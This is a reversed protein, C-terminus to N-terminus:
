ADKWKEQPLESTFSKIKTNYINEALSGIENKENLQEVLLDEIQQALATVTQCDFLSKLPVDLFLMERLRDIVRAAMLSDGGLEFFNDSANVVSVGLVDQWSQAILMEIEDMPETISTEGSPNLDTSSLSLLGNASVTVESALKQQNTQAVIQSQPVDVWYRQREFPYTPLPVRRRKEYRSFSAWDVDGGVTWLRGLASLLVAFDSQRDQPHPLSSLVVHEVTKPALRRTLTALTHGPGVELFLCPGTGFLQNLNEAFRITSQLHRAWYEPSTAEEGTIWTGTTNSLFPIGPLALEKERLIEVFPDHVPAMMNSHFAHSVHLRRSHIRKEDLRKQFEVIAEVPGSVVTAEPGNVAAISLGNGVLPLLNAESSAVALMAGRSCRQILQGRQAILALADELSFVGALCAAVYEGVSHGIMAQPQVGWSIWLKALAYEVVFLAPQALWTEDLQTESNTSREQTPFLVSRLDLGLLPVLLQACRDVQEAFFPETEYLERSMNEYQSGQGPFLFVTTRKVSTQGRSLWLEQADNKKLLHIADEINQCVLMQRYAFQKRGIQLTYAINALNADPWQSLYACLNNMTKNLATESRASLLLLQWPRAAETAKQEPAEELIVHANTGGVGFSSVGARRFGRQTEWEMSEINVFFPSDAFDIAPNPHAFNLSAPIQKQKLALITKLMGAIGSAADLHGINTKVSGIACTGKRQDGRSRFAKTLGEIEIPDGLPTGTGHAEIYSITEPHVGAVALADSIAKAQGDASPATYGIKTSGDNNIASGKIVASITDGDILAHSLRKLLVVGAGTGGVTGGAQADFARCHGDPSMMEGERYIYGAKLPVQISVGGALAMSCEGRLLAQCAMHVAVLSTSCATQVTVAPGKLNFKYATRTTLYDKDNLVVCQSLGVKQMYEQNAYLNKLLYTNFSAGGYVGIPKSFREPDYGANELAQWACELFIRQQPDMIEAERPTINFFAADFLDVDEIIGKAPIFRVHRAESLKVGVELSEELSFRSICEVKGLLNQWFTDLSEAQPFRGAMGIVAIDTEVEVGKDPFFVIDSPGEQMAPAPEDLKEIDPGYRIRNALASITTYRFLEVLQIDTDIAQCLQQYVRELLLSHGGLDFFNDYLGVEDTELNERWIAAIKQELSSGTLAPTAVKRLIAPAKALAKHDIKGHPTLPFAELATYSAPIMYEPLTQRLLDRLEAEAPVHNKEVVVYAVLRQANESREDLVVAAERVLPHRTLTSEIEGLEVRFGRIKVQRDIRDLFELNGDPLYRALDGTRYFRAGPESSFPNPLFREATFEPRHLYGRSIGAGSIYLEGAIGVPVPQLHRDLIYIQVNTTPRGISPARKETSSSPVITATAGVTCETPGYHNALAFPLSPSPYSHLKDGGTQLLRLQTYEPWSLLLLKEALVTPINSLTIKNTVLWDRLLPPSLRAAEDVLYLSAGAALTTWIEQVSADLGFSLLQSARDNATVGYTQLHWFILNMLNRHTVAVGKPTGTSGSTYIIYVLNDATLEPAAVEVAERTIIEWQTDLCLLRTAKDPLLPLFREQTVVVSARSDEIFFALREKPHVPDLPVYAGGAEIIGLLAVLTEPSRSLCVGVPVDPGVGLTRLYGALQHANRVLERYTLQQESSVVAWADPARKAQYRILGHIFDTQSYPVATANWEVLLQQRERESLLSLQTLPQDPQQLLHALFQQFYGAMREITSEEFLDTNYRFGASLRKGDEKIVLYLDINATGYHKEILSIELNAAQLNPRVHELAFMVQFFPAHNTRREPQLTEVLKTLPIDQYTYAELAVEQVRKLLQRFTLSSSVDTRIVLTNMLLGILNVLEPRNRYAIPIGILIDDQSLYRALFANFGALLTMFLTAGAQQGFTRLELSLQDPLMRTYIAGKGSPIPPRPHDLPLALTPLPSYLKRQWYALQSALVEGRLREKQWRAFNVYFYTLEELPSEEGFTYAEYLVCLEKLFIDLSVLDFVIHHVIFILWHENESLHLLRYRFLPGETLSFLRRREEIVLKEAQEERKDEPFMGLDVDVLKQPQFPKIVQLFNKGEEPDVLFAARLSAHRRVIENICKELTTKNLAGRLRLINTINYQFSDSQLHSTFLLGEQFPSVPHSSEMGGAKQQLKEFLLRRKEDSSLGAWKEDSM